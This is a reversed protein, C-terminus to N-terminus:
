TNWNHTQLSMYGHLKKEFSLVHFKMFRSTVADTCVLYFYEFINQNKLTIHKFLIYVSFVLIYAYGFFLIYLFIFHRM